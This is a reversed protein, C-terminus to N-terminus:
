CTVGALWALGWFLWGVIYPASIWTGVATPPLVALLILLTRISYRM